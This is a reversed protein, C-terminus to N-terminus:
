SSVAAAGASAVLHDGESTSGSVGVAGVTVGDKTIPVGGGFIQLRDTKVIGHLLPPEDKIMDWWDKTPPGFAAVSYAKDQAIQMSLLPAGDMRVFAVLHGARDCVAIDVKEDNDACYALAADLAKQAGALTLNPVSTTFEESM